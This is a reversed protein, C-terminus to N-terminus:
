GVDPSRWDDVLLTKPDINFLEATEGNLYFLLNANLSPIDHNESMTLGTPSDPRTYGAPHNSKEPSIFLKAVNAAPFFLIL